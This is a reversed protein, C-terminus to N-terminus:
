KFVCVCRSSEVDRKMKKGTEGIENLAGFKKLSTGLSRTEM